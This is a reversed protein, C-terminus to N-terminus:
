LETQMISTLYLFIAQFSIIQGPYHSSRIHKLHTMRVLSLPGYDISIYKERPIYM